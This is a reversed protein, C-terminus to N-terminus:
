PVKRRSQGASEKSVRIIEQISTEGSVVKRLANEQMYHMRQKRAAAKLQGVAANQRILQRIEENVELLEFVGVRGYYGTGQCTKCIKRAVNKEEQESITPPRYFVEINDAPLNIKRLLEPDPRYAEKCDPCLRRLLHQCLVAKLDQIGEEMNGVIRMWKAMAVFSDTSRMGILFSKEPAYGCVLHACEKSPCQDVMIVDPDRRLANALSEQLKSTVGYEVQTVNELEVVKSAELTMLMKIYADQSRVLSYLTSTVGGGAPGGVLIVGPEKILRLLRKKLDDELGLLNINTMALEQVVRLRIRQGEMTGATLVQIDVPTGAIDVSILGKQPRRREEIDLGAILKLLQIIQETDQADLSERQSLVGDIVYHVETKEGHPLLDAESARRWVIDYLVEQAQNFARVKPRDRLDSDTFVVPQGSKDYITLLNKVKEGRSLGDTKLGEFWEKTFLRDEPEVVTNRALIYSLVVAAVILPFGLLGVAYWPALFWGLLCFAGSYLVLGAWLARKTHVNIADRNIKPAFYLWALSFVVPPIFKFPSSYGGSLMDALLSTM